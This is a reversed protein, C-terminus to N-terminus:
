SIWDNIKQLFWQKEVLMPIKKLEEYLLQAEKKSNIDVLRHIMKLFDKNMAIHTEPINNKTAIFKKFTQISSELMDYYSKNKLMLEYYTKLLLRRQGLNYYIDNQKTNLIIDILESYMKKEFYICAKNFGYVEDKTEEILYIKYNELFHAAEEIKKTKLSANIYNKYTAVSIKGYQNLILNLKIFIHYIRLQQEYYAIFGANVKKISFFLLLKLIDRSEEQAFRHLNNEIILMAEFFYSEDDKKLLQNILHHIIYFARNDHQKQEVPFPELFSINEWRLKEANIFENLENIVDKYDGVRTNLKSHYTAILEEYQYKMFNQYTGFPLDDLIQKVERSTAIFYKDLNREFYFKLLNMKEDATNEERKIHVIYDEIIKTLESMLKSLKNENFKKDSFVKNYIKEKSINKEIFEPYQKELIILLRLPLTDKKETQKSIFVSLSKIEILSFSKLIEILKSNIM